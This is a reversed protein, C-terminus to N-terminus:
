AEHQSLAKEKGYAHKLAMWYFVDIYAQVKAGEEKYFSQASVQEQQDLISDVSMERVEYLLEEVGITRLKKLHEKEIRRM